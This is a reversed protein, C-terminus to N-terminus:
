EEKEMEADGVVAEAAAWDLTVAMMGMLQTRGTVKVQQIRSQM